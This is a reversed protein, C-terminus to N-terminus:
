IVIVEDFMFYFLPSTFLLPKNSFFEIPAYKTRQWQITEIKHAIILYAMYMCPMMADYVYM